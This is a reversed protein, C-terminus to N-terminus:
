EPQQEAAIQALIRVEVPPLDVLGITPAAGFEPRLDSLAPWRDNVGYGRLIGSRRSRCEIADHAAVLEVM